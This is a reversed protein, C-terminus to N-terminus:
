FIFIELWNAQSKHLKILYELANILFCGKKKVQTQLFFFSSFSHCPHFTSLSPSSPELFWTWPELDPWLTSFISRWPNLRFMEAVIAEYIQFFNM